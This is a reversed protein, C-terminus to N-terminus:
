SVPSVVPQSFFDVFFLRASSVNTMIPQLFQVAKFPFGTLHRYASSNPWMVCFKNHPATEGSCVTLTLWIEISDQWRRILMEIPFKNTLNVGKNPHTSSKFASYYASQVSFKRIWQQSTFFFTSAQRYDDLIKIESSKSKPIGHATKM